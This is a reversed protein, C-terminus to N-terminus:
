EYRTDAAGIDTLRPGREAELIRGSLAKPFTASV